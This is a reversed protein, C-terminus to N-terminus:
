RPAARKAREHWTQQQGPTEMAIFDRGHVAFIFKYGKGSLAPDTKCLINFKRRATNYDDERTLAPCPILAKVYAASSGERERYRVSFGIKGRSQDAAIYMVNDEILSSDNFNDATIM